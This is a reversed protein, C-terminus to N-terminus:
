RRGPRVSQLAAPTGGAVHAGSSAPAAVWNKAATAALAAWRVGARYVLRSIEPRLRLLQRKHRPLLDENVAYRAVLGTGEPVLVRQLQLEWVAEDAGDARWAVGPSPRFSTPPLEAAVDQRGATEYLERLAQHLPWELGRLFGQEGHAILMMGILSSMGRQFSGDRPGAPNATVRHTKSPPRFRRSATLNQSARGVGDMILELIDLFEVFELFM